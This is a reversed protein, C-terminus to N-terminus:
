LPFRLPSPRSPPAIASPMIKFRCKITFYGIWLRCEVTLDLNKSYKEICPSDIHCYLM